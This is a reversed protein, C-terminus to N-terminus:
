GIILSDSDVPTVSGIDIDVAVARQLLTVAIVFRGFKKSAVFFGGLGALPGREIRVRSGTRMMTWPERPCGSKVVREIAQIEAEELPIPERGSGLVRLIGPTTVLPARNEPDFRCFLYGPFLPSEETALHGNRKKQYTPLFEEYGKYRLLCAVAKEHRTMVQVAFWKNKHSVGLSM